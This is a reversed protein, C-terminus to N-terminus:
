ISVLFSDLSNERKAKSNIFFPRSFFQDSSTNLEIFANAIICYDLKDDLFWRNSSFLSNFSNATLLNWNSGTVSTKISGPYKLYEINQEKCYEMFLEEVIEFWKNAILIEIKDGNFRVRYNEYKDESKHVEIDYKKLDYNIMLLNKLDDLSYNMFNNYIKNNLVCIDLFPYYVFRNNKDIKTIPFMSNNLIKEVTENDFDSRIKNLLKKFHENLSGKGTIDDIYKLMQYENKSRYAISAALYQDYTAPEYTNYVLVLTNFQKPLNLQVNAQLQSM